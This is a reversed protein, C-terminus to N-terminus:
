QASRRAAEDLVAQVWVQGPELRLVEAGAARACDGTGDTSGDDVVLIRHLGFPKLGALVAPLAEVEDHASLIAAIRM